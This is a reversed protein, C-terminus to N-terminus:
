YKAFVAVVVLSSVQLIRIDDYNDEGRAMYLLYGVELGIEYKGQQAQGPNPSIL